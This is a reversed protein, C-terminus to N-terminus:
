EWGLGAGGRLSLDRAFAELEDRLEEVAHPAAGCLHVGSVRGAHAPDPIAEAARACALVRAYDELAAEAAEGVARSAAFPLDLCDPGPDARSM